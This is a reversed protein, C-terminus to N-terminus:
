LTALFFESFNQSMRFLLNKILKEVPFTFIEQLNPGQNRECKKHM